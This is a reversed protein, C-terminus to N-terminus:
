YLLVIPHIVAPLLSNSYGNQVIEMEENDVCIFQIDTGFGSYFYQLVDGNKLNLESISCAGLNINETHVNSLDLPVSTIVNQMRLFKLGMLNELFIQNSDIGSIQLTADLSSNVYNFNSNKVSISDNIFYLDLSGIDAINNDISINKAGRILVSKLSQNNFNLDLNSPTNHSNDQIFDIKELLPSSDIGTVNNLNNTYRFSFEKLVACNTLDLSSGVFESISLYELSPMSSLNLTSFTGAAINLETLNNHVGFILNDTLHSSQVRVYELNPLNTLDFLPNNFGVNQLEFNTLAPNNFNFSDISSSLKISRLSQWISLDLSNVQITTVELEELNVFNEFGGLDQIGHALTNFSFRLVQQAENLQIQGDNNFDANSDSIGDANTDVCLRTTLYILLDPDSFQINQSFSFSTFLLLVVLILGKM